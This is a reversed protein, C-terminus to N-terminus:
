GFREENIQQKLIYCQEVDIQFMGILMTWYIFVDTLEEAIMPRAEELTMSGRMVKKVIDIVEGSEGCLGMVNITLSNATEEGFWRASDNHMEQALGHLLENLSNPAPAQEESMLM